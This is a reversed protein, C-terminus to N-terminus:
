SVVLPGSRVPIELCLSMRPLMVARCRICLVHVSVRAHWCVTHLAVAQETLEVHKKLLQINQEDETPFSELDAEMAALQSEITETNEACLLGCAM